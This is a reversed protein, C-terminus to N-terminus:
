RRSTVQVFVTRGPAPYGRLTEYRAGLLNDVGVVLWLGSTAVEYRLGVTVHGPLTVRAAPFSSFDLDDREGVYRALLAVAGQPGLDRRLVLSATWSPVRLLRTGETRNLGDTWTVNALVQWGDSPSGSLEASAGVIRASGVNQPNCGGVILDQADTYFTNVRGVWRGGPAYELGLDASWAAEPRLNPNSCGPFYLEAFTPGRFTRGVAGRVRLAESVLHVFGLRPNLQGGYGSHLDYRLGVGLLTREGVPVDYQVFAAGVQVTRDFGGGFSDSFRYSAQHWEGGFTLAGGGHLRVVQQWDGGFAEGRSSSAYGVASYDLRDGYWWLRGRDLSGGQHARSWGVQVVTRADAQRDPCPYCFSNTAGPLGYRADTHHVQLSWRSEATPEWSLHLIGTWRSADGNPQYGASGLHEATLSYGAAGTQWGVSLAAVSESAGGYAARLRLRGAPRTVVHVVGGLAGSGWIASYPGRLVEVRDVEALSLTALNVGLQATANLPVGDLLVLVQQPSSGRVSPQLLGGPGGYSERVYAEALYRLAEGVTQFGLRRLQEGQLVTVYAPSSRVPEPRRGSVVVEGGEFTPVEQPQALAPPVVLTFLLLVAWPAHARLSPCM